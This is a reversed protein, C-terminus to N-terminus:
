NSNRLVAITAAVMDNSTGAQGHVGGLRGPCHSPSAGLGAMAPGMVPAQAATAPRVVSGHGDASGISRFELLKLVAQLRIEM